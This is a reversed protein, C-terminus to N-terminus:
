RGMAELVNRNGKIFLKPGDLVHTVFHDRGQIRKRYERESMVHPNVERGIKESVGALLQTLKRLSM